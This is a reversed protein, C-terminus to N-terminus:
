RSRTSRSGTSSTDSTTTVRSSTATRWTKARPCRPSSAPKAARWRSYLGGYSVTRQLMRRVRVCVKGLGKWPWHVTFHLVSLFTAKRVRHRSFQGIGTALKIEELSFEEGENFMLLVLTQFLSVHLEKRGQRSTFLSPSMNCVPSRRVAFSGCFLCCAIMLVCLFAVCSFIILM